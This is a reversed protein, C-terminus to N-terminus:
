VLKLSYSNGVETAGLIDVGVLQLCCSNALLFSIEEKILVGDSCLGPTSLAYREM